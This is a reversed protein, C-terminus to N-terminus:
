VCIFASGCMYVCECVYLRVGVCIFVCMCKSEKELGTPFVRSWLLGGQQSSCVVFRRHNHTFENDVCVNRLEFGVLMLMRSVGLVLSM